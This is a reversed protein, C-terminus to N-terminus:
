KSVSNELLIPNLRLFLDSMGLIVLQSIWCIITSSNVCTGTYLLYLFIFVHEPSADRSNKTEGGKEIRVLVQIQTDTKWGSFNSVNISILNSLVIVKIQCLNDGM